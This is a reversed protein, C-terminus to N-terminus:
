LTVPGIPIHAVVCHEAHHIFQVLQVRHLTPWQHRQPAKPQIHHILIPETNFTEQHLPCRPQTRSFPIYISIPSPVSSTTYILFREDIFQLKLPFLPTLLSMKHKYVYVFSVGGYDRQIYRDSLSGEYYIYVPM